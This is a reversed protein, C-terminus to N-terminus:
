NPKAGSASGAIRELKVPLFVDDGWGLVFVDKEFTKHEKARVTVHHKGANVPYEVRAPNELRTGTKREGDVVIEPEYKSLGSSGVSPDSSALRVDLKGGSMKLTAMVSPLLKDDFQAIPATYLMVLFDGGAGRIAYSHRTRNFAGISGTKLDYFDYGPKKQWLDDPYVVELRPVLSELVSVDLVDATFTHWRGTSHNIVETDTLKASVNQSAYRNRRDDLIQKENSWIEASGNRLSHAIGYQYFQISINTQPSDPARFNIQLYFGGEEAHSRTWGSPVSFSLQRKHFELRVTAPLDRESKTWEFSPEPTPVPTPIPTPAPQTKAAELARIRNNALDAYVGNPYRKLYARFDEPDTSSRITEWYTRETAVAEDEKSKATQNTNGRGSTTSKKPTVKKPVPTPTPVPKVTGGKGQPAVTSAGSNAQPQVFFLGAAILIVAVTLYIRFSILGRRM